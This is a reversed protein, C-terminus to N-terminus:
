LIQYKYWVLDELMVVRVYERFIMTLGFLILKSPLYGILAVYTSASANVTHLLNGSYAIRLILFFWERVLSVEDDDVNITIRKFGFCWLQVFGFSSNHATM